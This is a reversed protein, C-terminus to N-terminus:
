ISFRTTIWKLHLKIASMVDHDHQRGKGSVFVWAVYILIFANIVQTDDVHTFYM